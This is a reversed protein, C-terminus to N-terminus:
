FFRGIQNRLSMPVGGLRIHDPTYRRESGSRLSTAQNSDFAITETDAIRVSVTVVGDLQPRTVNMGGFM